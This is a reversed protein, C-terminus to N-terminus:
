EIQVDEGQELQETEQNDEEEDEAQQQGTEEEQKQEEEIGEDEEEGEQRDETDEPPFNHRRRYEERTEVELDLKKYSVEQYRIRPAEKPLTQRLRGQTAAAHPVSSM